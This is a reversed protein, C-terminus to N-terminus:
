NYSYNLFKFSNIFKGDMSWFNKIKPGIINTYIKCYLYENLM